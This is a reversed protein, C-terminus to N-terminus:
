VQGMRLTDLLDAAQDENVQVYVTPDSFTLSAVGDTIEVNADTTGTQEMIEEVLKHLLDPDFCGAEDQVPVPQPTPALLKAREAEATERTEFLRQEIISGVWLRFGHQTKAVSRQGGRAPTYAFVTSIRADQGNLTFNTFLSM